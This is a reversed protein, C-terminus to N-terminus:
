PGGAFFFSLSEKVGEGHPPDPFKSFLNVVGLVWITVRVPERMQGVAAALRDGIDAINAM